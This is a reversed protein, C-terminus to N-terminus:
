LFYQFQDWWLSRLLKVTSEPNDAVHMSKARRLLQIVAIEDSIDSMWRALTCYIANEILRLIANSEPVQSSRM